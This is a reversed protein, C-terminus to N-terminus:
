RARLRLSTVFKPLNMSGRASLISTAAASSASTSSEMRGDQTASTMRVRSNMTDPMRM